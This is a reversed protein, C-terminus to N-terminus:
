SIWTGSPMALTLPGDFQVSFLMEVVGKGLRPVPCHDQPM